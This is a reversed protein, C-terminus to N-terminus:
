PIDLARQAGSTQITFELEEGANTGMTGKVVVTVFPQLIRTSGSTGVGTVYFALTEVQIQDDTLPPCYTELTINCQGITGDANLKYFVANGEPDLFSITNCPSSACTEPYGRGTRISRIMSEVAFSLNSVLQNTARAQRDYSILALYVGTVILMVMSFIGVAVILEVLSYGRPTKARTSNMNNM